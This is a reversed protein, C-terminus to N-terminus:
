NEHQVKVHPKSETCINSERELSYCCSWHQKGISAKIGLNFGCKLYSCDEYKAHWTGSHICNGGTNNDSFFKRGCIRCIHFSQLKDSIQDQM